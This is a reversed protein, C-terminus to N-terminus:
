EAAALVTTNEDCRIASEVGDDTVLVVGGVGENLRTMVQRLNATLPMLNRTLTPHRTM